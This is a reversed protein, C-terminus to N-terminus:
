PPPLQTNEPMHARWHEESIIQIPVGEQKMTVAKEVKNGFSSHMWSGTAYIGIVLYNTKKTLSGCIGGLQSVADECSTRPGYAFTGTFCYHRGSFVVSPLPKDLPLSTSKLVEGLEFDGGSLGKLTELLEAAEEADLHNDALMANVRSLLNMTIPSTRVETHAVLWKQLYEAEQQNIIGDATLGHALGILEDIQRDSLRKNGYLRYLDESM